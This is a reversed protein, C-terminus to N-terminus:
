KGSETRKNVGVSVGEGWFLRSNKTANTFTLSSLEDFTLVCDAYILPVIRNQFATSIDQYNKKNFFASSFDPILFNFQSVSLSDVRNKVGAGAGYVRLIYQITAIFHFVPQMKAQLSFISTLLPFIEPAPLADSSLYKPGYFYPNLTPKDGEIRIQKCYQWQTVIRGTHHGTVWFILM